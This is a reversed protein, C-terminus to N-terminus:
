LTFNDIGDHRLYSEVFVIGCPLNLISGFKLRMTRTKWYFFRTKRLDTLLAIVSYNSRTSAAALQLVAQKQDSRRVQGKLEITVRM